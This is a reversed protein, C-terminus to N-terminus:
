AEFLFQAWPEESGSPNFKDVQEVICIVNCSLKEISFCIFNLIKWREVRVACLCFVKCHPAHSKVEWYNFVIIMCFRHCIHCKWTKEWTRTAFRRQVCKQWKSDANSNWVLWGILFRLFRFLDLSFKWSQYNAKPCIAEVHDDKRSFVFKHALFVFQKSSV